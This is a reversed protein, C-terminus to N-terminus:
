IICMSQVAGSVLLLLKHYAQFLVFLCWKDWIFRLLVVSIVGGCSGSNSVFSLSLSVSVRLIYIYLTLPPHSINQPSDATPPVSCTLLLPSFRASFLLLQVQFLPPSPFSHIKFSSFWWLFLFLDVLCFLFIIELIFQSCVCFCVFLVVHFEGILSVWNLVRYPLSVLEFICLIM